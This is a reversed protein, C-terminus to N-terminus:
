STKKTNKTELSSIREQELAKYTMNHLLKFVGGGYKLIIDLKLQSHVIQHSRLKTWHERLNSNLISKVAQFRQQQNHFNGQVKAFTPTLQLHRCKLIFGISEATRQTKSTISRLQKYFEAIDQPLLHIMVGRLISLNYKLIFLITNLFPLRKRDLLDDDPRTSNPLNPQIQINLTGKPFLNLTYSHVQKNLCPQFKAIFM